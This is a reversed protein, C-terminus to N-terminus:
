QHSILFKLIKLPFDVDFFYSSEQNILLTLGFLMSDCSSPLYFINAYVITTPAKTRKRM